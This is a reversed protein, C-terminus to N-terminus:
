RYGGNLELLIHGKITGVHHLGIFEDRFRRLLYNFSDNGVLHVSVHKGDKHLAHGLLADKLIDKWNKPNKYYLDSLSM